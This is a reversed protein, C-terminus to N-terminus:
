QSSLAEVHHGTKRESADAVIHLLDVVTSTHHIHTEVSILASFCIAKRDFTLFMMTSLALGSM